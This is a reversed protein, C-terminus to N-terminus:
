KGPMIARGCSRGAPWGNFGMRRALEGLHEFEEPPVYRVVPMQAPSAASVPGADADPLRGGASRGAHGATGRDDRGARADARDEARDESEAGSAASCRWRGATIPCFPPSVRAGMKRSPMKWTKEKKEGAGGSVAAARNGHQPQLGGAGGRDASGGGGRQRRFRVAAGRDHPFFPVPGKRRIRGRRVAFFLADGTGWGHRAIARITEVFHEAGGDPLDDRTVCTIVVHQLGLARAAEAVRRPEDPDPPLPQGKKVSCFRCARTCIDGLILFTATKQSLVGDPEPM